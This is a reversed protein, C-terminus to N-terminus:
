GCCEGHNRCAWGRRAPLQFHDGGTIGGGTNLMVADLTTGRSRPFLLKLSGQQHLKDLVTQGDHM